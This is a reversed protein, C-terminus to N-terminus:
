NCLDHCHTAVNKQHEEDTYAFFTKGADERDGAVFFLYDGPAPDAVAQLASYNMNAIPGPPLGAYKRTNYPSDLNVSPKVGLQNAAYIFTVDSGLVMGESLRKYFVQAVQRQDTPNSVEKQVISALTLAQHLNLGHAKFKDIMGDKQLRGYLEDFTRGFLVQLGDNPDVKFTEPFIYGELSAGAPRDALLASTYTANFAATIEADNYGYKQLADRIGLLSVGPPITINLDDTKGSVLHDIIDSISQAPSVIYGGAQLKNKTRSLEAYVRFATASRVVGSKKLTQAITSSTDGSKVTIRIKETSHSNLPQLAWAYWSILATIVILICAGVGALIWKMPWRRKIALPKAPIPKPLSVPANKPQPDSIYGPSLKKPPPKIDM